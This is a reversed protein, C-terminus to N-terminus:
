TRIIYNFLKTFQKKCKLYNTNSIAAAVHKGPHPNLIRFFEFQYIRGSPAKLYYSERENASKLQKSIELNYLDSMHNTRKKQVM